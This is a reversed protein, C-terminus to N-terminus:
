VIIIVIQPNEVATPMHKPANSYKINILTYLSALLGKSKPFATLDDIGKWPNVVIFVFYWSMLTIKDNELTYFKKITHGGAIIYALSKFFVFKYKQTIETNPFCTNDVLKHVRSKILRM